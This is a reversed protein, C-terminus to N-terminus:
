NEFGNYNSFDPIQRKLKIKLAKGTKVSLNQTEILKMKKM